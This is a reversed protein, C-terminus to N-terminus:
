NIRIINMVAGVERGVTDGEREGLLCGDEAGLVRGLVEGEREGVLYGDKCGLEDGLEM